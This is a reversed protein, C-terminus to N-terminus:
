LRPLRFFGCYLTHRGCGLHLSYKFYDLILAERVCVREEMDQTYRQRPLSLTVSSPRAFAPGNRPLLTLAASQRARSPRRPCHSQRRFSPAVDVVYNNCDNTYLIFLM